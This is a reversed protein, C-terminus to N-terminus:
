KNKIEDIKYYNMKSNLFDINKKNEFLNLFETIKKDNKEKTSYFYYNLLLPYNSNIVNKKDKIMVPNQKNFSIYKLKEGVIVNTLSLSNLDFASIKAVEDNDNLFNFRNFTKVDKNKFNTFFKKMLYSKKNPAYLHIRLEPFIDNKTSLEKWYKIKGLIIKELQEQSINKINNNQSVILYIPQALHLLLRPQKASDKSIIKESSIVIDANTSKNEELLNKKKFSTTIAKKYLNSSLFTVMPYDISCKSSIFSMKILPKDEPLAFTKSSILLLILLTSKHLLNIILRRNKM